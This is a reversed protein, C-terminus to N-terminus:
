AGRGPLRRRQSDIVGDSTFTTVDNTEGVVLWQGGQKRSVVVMDWPTAGVSFNRILGYANVFTTVYSAAVSNGTVAGEIMGPQYIRGRFSRGRLGTRKTIVLACNNPLSPSANTGVIPLGTGYTIVTGTQTTLDTLKIASLQLNTPVNPKINANWWTVLHAALDNMLIPNVTPTPQFHLVNEVAQGDWLQFMDVQVTNPVPIYDM